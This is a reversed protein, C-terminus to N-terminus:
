LRVRPKQWFASGFGDGCGVELVKKGYAARAILTYPKLHQAYFKPPVESPIIRTEPKYSLPM